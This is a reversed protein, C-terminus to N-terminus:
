EHYLDGSNPGSAVYHSDNASETIRVVTLKNMDLVDSVEGDRSAQQVPTGTYPIGTQPDRPDSSM